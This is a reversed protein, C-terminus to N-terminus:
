VVPSKHIITQIAALNAQLAKMRAQSLNPGLALADATYADAAEVILATQEDTLRQGNITIVPIPNSM